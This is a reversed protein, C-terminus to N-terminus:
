VMWEKTQGESALQEVRTGVHKDNMPILKVFFEWSGHRSRGKDGVLSRCLGLVHRPRLSHTNSRWNSRSAPVNALLVCVGVWSVSYEM